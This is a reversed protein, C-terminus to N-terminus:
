ALIKMEKQRHISLPHHPQSQLFCQSSGVALGIIMFSHGISLAGVCPILGMVKPTQTYFEKVLVLDHHEMKYPRM